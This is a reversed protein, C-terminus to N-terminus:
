GNDPIKKLKLYKETVIYEGKKRSGKFQIIGRKKLFNIYRYVSRLTINQSKSFANSSFRREEIDNLVQLLKDTRHKSINFEKMFRENIMKETIQSSRIFVSERSLQKRYFTVTTFDTFEFKIPPLGEKKILRRM